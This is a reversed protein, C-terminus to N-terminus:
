SYQFEGQNVSNLFQTVNDATIVEIKKDAEEIQTLGGRPLTSDM